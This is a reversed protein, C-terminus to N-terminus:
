VVDSFISLVSVFYRPYELTYFAEVAHAFQMVGIVSIFALCSRCMSATHQCQCPHLLSISTSALIRFVGIVSSFALCSRCMSATHQCQCPHFARFAVAFSLCSPLFQLCCWLHPSPLKHRFARPALALPSQVARFFAEDSISPISTLWPQCPCHLLL